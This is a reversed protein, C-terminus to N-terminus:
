TKSYKRIEPVNSKSEYYSSQELYFDELNRNKDLLEKISITGLNIGKSLVMVRDCLKEMEWLMSSSIVICIGLEHSIRKLLERIKKTAIPNFDRIPEDLILLMPNNLLSIGIALILKNEASYSKVKKNLDLQSSILQEVVKLQEKSIIRINAYRNLNELGTLRELLHPLKVIVGIEKIADEYDYDLDYGGIIVTGEEKKLLGTVLKIITTKGDGKQGFIGFIEGSYGTLSIRNIIKHRRYQKTLGIVQLVITKSKMRGGSNCM